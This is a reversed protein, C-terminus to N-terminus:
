NVKRSKTGPLWGTVSGIFAIILAVLLFHGFYNEGLATGAAEGAAAANEPDMAGAIAGVVFAASIFTGLSLAVFWLFGFGIKRLM